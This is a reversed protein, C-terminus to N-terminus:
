EKSNIILEKSLPLTEVWKCFDRWEPLRHNKRQGYVTKLSRYNTTLRATLEFGAPNSYLLRLYDEKDKTQNYKEKLEEMIEIIRSDVYENYSKKLDFSAIRHMTSQSSVFYIFRYRELEVWAKNTFTLDFDVHIGTLFQDHAAGIPTQALKKARNIHKPIEEKTDQNDSVFEHNVNFYLADSLDNFNNLIPIETMMPYGSAIISEELGSIRVNNIKM